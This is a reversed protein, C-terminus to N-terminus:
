QIRANKPNEAIDVKEVFKAHCHLFIPLYYPQPHNAVNINVEEKLIYVKCNSPSRTVCSQAHGMILSHARIDLFLYKIVFSINILKVVNEINYCSM